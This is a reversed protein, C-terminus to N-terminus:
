CNVTSIVTGHSDFQGQQTGCKDQRLSWIHKTYSKKKEQSWSEINQSRCSLSHGKLRKVDDGAIFIKSDPSPQCIQLSKIVPSSPSYSASFVCSSDWEWSSNALSANLFIINHNWLGLFYSSALRLILLVGEGMKKQFPKPSTMACHPNPWTEVLM